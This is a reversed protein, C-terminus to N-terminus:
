NRQEARKATGSEDYIVTGDKHVLKFSFELTNDDVLRDVFTAVVEFQEPEALTWNMERRDPNWNGYHKINVGQEDHYWAVYKQERNDYTIIWTYQYRQDDPGATGTSQMARGNLIAQSHWQGTTKYPEPFVDTAKGHVTNTWQGTYPAYMHLPDEAPPAQEADQAHLPCALLSVLLLLAPLLLHKM